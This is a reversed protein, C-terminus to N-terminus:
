RESPFNQHMVISGKSRGCFPLAASSTDNAHAPRREAAIYQWREHLPEAAKKRVDINIHLRAVAIM